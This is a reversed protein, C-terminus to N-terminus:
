HSYKGINEEHYKGKKSISAKHSLIKLYILFNKKDEQKKLNFEKDNLKVCDKYDVKLVKQWKDINKSNYFFRENCYKIFHYLDSM